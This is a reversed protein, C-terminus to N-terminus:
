CSYPIIRDDLFMSCLHPTVFNPLNFPPFEGMPSAMPSEMDMELAAM